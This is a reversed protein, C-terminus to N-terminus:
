AFKTQAAFIQYTPTADTKTIIYTYVDVSSANGATPAAGQWKATVATGDVQVATNYYATAGNTARFAGSISQGVGLISNLTATSNGRFNVVFNGTANTTYYLDAQTNFDFAVTGTAAVATAVTTERPSTILVNTLSTDTGVAQWASGDYYQTVNTDTLYSVMGESPTGIASSRAATGAFVMVVQQQIYTNLQAATLVDGAAWTKFGAGAM